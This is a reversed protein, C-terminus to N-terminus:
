GRAPGPDRRAQPLYVVATQKTFFTLSWAMGALLCSWRKNALLLLFSAILWPQTALDAQGTWNQFWPPAIFLAYLFASAWAQKLSFGLRKTLFFILVACLWHCLMIASHLAVESSGLLGQIFGYDLYILPPKHDWVDKYLLAGHRMEQAVAGYIGENETFPLTPYFALSVSIVILLAIFGLATRPGSSKSSIATQDM